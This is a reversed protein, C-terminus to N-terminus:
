NAYYPSIMLYVVVGTVAVYLWLPFTIKAIKKHKDFRKALARVYTVLVFPIIIISLLIHTILIFAYLYRVAGIKAKEVADLIGDHNVDGFKTSDATMHYAVYMALFALSLAIAFTMLREHLKLKGNKVAIVAAVLVIATLGNTSAYIPPLFSLPEVNIGFDKLKIAFLIGVLVPIVISVAIIYKNYKKELSHDEM